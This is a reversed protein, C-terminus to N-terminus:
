FSGSILPSGVTVTDSSIFVHLNIPRNFLTTRYKIKKSFAYYSVGYSTQETNILTASFDELFNQLDFEEKNTKFSEGYINNLFVFNTVPVTVFDATSDRSNLYVELESAYDKFVPVRNVFCTCFVLLACTLCVSIKKFM